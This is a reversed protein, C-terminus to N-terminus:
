LEGGKSSGMLNSRSMGRLISKLRKIYIKFTSLSLIEIIRINEVVAKVRGIFSSFLESVEIIEDRVRVWIRSSTISEIVNVSELVRIFMNRVERVFEGIRVSEVVSKFLNSLRASAEGINVVEVIQRVVRRFSNIAEGIRVTEMFSRFKGLALSPIEDIRVSEVVLRFKNSLVKFAELLRVQEIITKVMSISKSFAESLSVLEDSIRVRMRSSLTSELIRVNEVIGVVKGLASVFSEVLRETENVVRNLMRSRVINELLNVFEGFVRVVGRSILRAENLNIAEDVKKFRQRLKTVIESVRVMESIQLVRGKIVSATEFINLGELAHRFKNMARQFADVLNITEDRVRIWMRSMVINELLNVQEAVSRFCGRRLIVNELLQLTEGFVRKIAGGVLFALIKAEGNPSGGSATMKVQYSPNTVGSDYRFLPLVGSRANYSTRFIYWIRLNGVQGTSSNDRQLVVANAAFTDGDNTATREAAALAIVAVDGSLTTSLNGVTTQTTGVAVSATDLFAADAVDFAVIEAYCNHAQTSGNTIEVSYTQSSSTPTDLYILSARLPYVDRYSGINFQNSAVVTSGSKLKINGAGILYDGVTTTAAGAYVTAIVVVKSGSAFSTNISTVTGTGGSAINVATTNYGWVATDVKIVMGQVHVSGSTSGNLTINIRFSYSDNGAPTSDVAILLHHFPRTRTTTFHEGAIRSEYLLTSGKYIRFTGPASVSTYGAYSVLIINNGGSPLTTNM